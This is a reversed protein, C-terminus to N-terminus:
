TSTNWVATRCRSLRRSRLAVAGEIKLTM